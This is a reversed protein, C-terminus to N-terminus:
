RLQTAGFAAGRLGLLRDTVVRVPINALLSQHPSKSRFRAEFRGTQLLALVKPAIGGALYVGGLALARLAMNGAEQAFVEVFVEMAAVCLPDDGALAHQSIVASPDSADAIERAITASEREVRGHALARYVNEIGPGSVVREYTVRDGLLGQLARLVAIQREDVPAFDAHGGEGPLVLIAGDEARVALAAGLGTGAGIVAIPARPDAEGELLPAYGDPGLQTVGLTQAAFDNILRVREVALAGRIAREDVLPWPLNTTLCAGDRVPGAIAFCARDFRAAREGVFRRLVSEFSDFERSAYTAEAVIADGDFLALRSSTGGIDGALVTM